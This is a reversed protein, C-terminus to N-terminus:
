ALLDRGNRGCNGKVAMLDSYKRAVLRHFRTAPVHRSPRTYDKLWSRGALIFDYKLAPRRSREKGNEGVGM